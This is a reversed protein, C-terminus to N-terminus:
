LNHEHLSTVFRLLSSEKENIGLNDIFILKFIDICNQVRTINGLKVLILIELRDESYSLCLAVFSL